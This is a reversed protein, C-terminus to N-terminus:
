HGHADEERQGAKGLATDLKDQFVFLVDTGAAPQFKDSSLVLRVAHCAAKACTCAHSTVHSLCIVM